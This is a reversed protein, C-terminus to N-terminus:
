NSRRPRKTPKSKQNDEKQVNIIDEFKYVHNGEGGDSLEYSLSSINPLVDIDTEDEKLLESSQRAQIQKRLSPIKNTKVEKPSASLGGGINTGCSSCFKPKAGSYTMKAGCETCFLTQM